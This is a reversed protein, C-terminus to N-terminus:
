RVARRTASPSTVGNLYVLVENSLPALTALQKAGRIVVGDAREEVVRLALDPDDIASASRDIQPDGLAHTLM